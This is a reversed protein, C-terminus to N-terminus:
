AAEQYEEAGELEVDEMEYSPTHLLYEEGSV